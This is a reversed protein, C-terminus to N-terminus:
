KGEKQQLKKQQDARKRIQEKLQFGKSRNREHITATNEKIKKNLSDGM